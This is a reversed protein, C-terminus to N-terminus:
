PTPIHLLDHSSHMDNSIEDKLSDTTRALTSDSLRIDFKPGGINDSHISLRNM